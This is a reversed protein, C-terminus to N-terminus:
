CGSGVLVPAGGQVEPRIEVLTCESRAIKAETAM